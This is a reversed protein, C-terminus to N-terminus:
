SVQGSIFHTKDFKIALVLNRINGADNVRIECSYKREVHRKKGGFNKTELDEGNGTM